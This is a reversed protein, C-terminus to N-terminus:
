DYYYDYSTENFHSENSRNNVPNQSAISIATIHTENKSQARLNKSSQSCSVICSKQTRRLAKMKLILHTPFNMTRKQNITTPKMLAGILETAKCRLRRFKTRNIFPNKRCNIKYINLAQNDFSFYIGYVKFPLM